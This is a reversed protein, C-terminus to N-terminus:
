GSAIEWWPTTGYITESNPALNALFRGPVALPGESKFLPSLLCAEARPSGVLLRRIFAHRPNLSRPAKKWYLEFRM